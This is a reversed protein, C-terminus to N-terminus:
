RNRGGDARIAMLYDTEEQLHRKLSDASPASKTRELWYERLAADIEEAQMHYPDVERKYRLYTVIAGAEERTFVSLRYCAYDYFTMGGYRQPNVFATKGTQRIFVHTNTQHKISVDSFGHVLVFFPEATHLEERIDAILYAPLFFRLGAESFFSLAEYCGDLLASDINQWDARGKFPAMVEAPECGDFSGQLFGDGPYANEGFATRIEKIVAEKDPMYM